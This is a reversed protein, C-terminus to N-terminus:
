YVAEFRFFMQSQSGTPILMNIVGNSGIIPDGYSQWNVFDTSYLIQYSVGKAGFWGLNVSAGQPTANLAFISPPVALFDQKASALINAFNVSSPILTDTATSPVLTGTWGFPVVIAYNGRADTTAATLGGSPQVNVGPVPANNTDTITGFISPPVIMFSGIYATAQALGFIDVVPPNVQITYQGIATQQPFSVTIQSLDQPYDNITSFSLSTAPLVGNPTTIVVNTPPLSLQGLQSNWFLSISSVANSVTGSPSQSIIQPASLNTTVITGNQGPSAGAAGSVSAVGIFNNTLSYLAIRGGGGGGGAGPEGAGGNATIAGNGNIAGANVWVSGGAGGGTNQFIAAKGNATISGDVTLAGAVELRIAGGGQSFNAFAASPVGGQSGWDVPQQISGYTIGGPEGTASAGGKGGYGGGGGSDVGGPLMTGAGPGASGIGDYGQGDVSIAGAAEIVANGFVVLSANDNASPSTVVGNSQVLLNSLYLTPDTASSTVSPTQAIANGSVTLNLLQPASISTKAGSLGGNDVLVSGVINNSSQTYITGAGGPVFGQGGHASVTGTFLNSLYYIAIRGGGGGGSYPLIGAGGNASIAGAGALTSVTLQISGGSGGGCGEAFPTAANASISGELDLTGNVNMQVSGGGASQSYPPTFCGGGSGMSVPALISGYAVGQAASIASSGGFGGYAGGTGMAFGRISTGSSGAGTGQNGFFGGGDAIIQAGAQVTANSLVTVGSVPSGNTGALSLVSNSTLLLNHVALRNPSAASVKAGGTITLDTAGPLAPLVTFTTVGSTGGGDVLVQAYQTGNVHSYITGASGPVFGGGGYASITGTFLNTNLSVAIRGGGGGGGLASEGPGGNASIIGNGSFIGGVTLMISGGSGGGSGEGLGAVGNASISGGLLLGGTISLQIAGGGAGGRNFPSNGNGNGGNSGPQTPQVLSGYSNGGPGGGASAGGNGGYGGGAGTFSGNTSISGGSGPGNQPGLYGGGDVNIGGGAQITATGSISLELSTPSQVAPVPLTLFSNSAVLLNRVLMGQIPVVTAGNTVTLDITGGSQGSVPTNTGRLGGNDVLLQTSAPHIITMLITGAGGNIAGTGGHAVIGGSFQNTGLSLAIRGGGGGGGGGLSPEGAGGNASISGNGSIAGATVLISGGSGGGSAQGVGATGNASLIGDLELAGTVTLQIAAGGLGGRNNPAVGAGVGGSSGYTEPFSISGYSNGGAAGRASGGGYGGSGGGGGTAIDNSAFTGGVGQGGSSLGDVVVGGGAQITATGSARLNLPPYAQGNISSLTITSNSTVLLNRMEFTAQPLAALIAGNAVTLDYNNGAGELPTTAGRNGGNDLVLQALNNSTQVYVTGAGGPVFGGGGYASATGTFLNTTPYIAIRGGGGGGGGGLSPEGAGGNASFSGNGSLQGVTVWISGGSGGGSGQGVGTNGNASIRGAMLLTGTVTLRVGGGGTGGANFPSTGGGNGGGSGVSSPQTFSGFYTGGPVGSASSGGVGGYGGGGGMVVSNTVYSGGQGQGSVASAAGDGDVIIGGGSQITANGTLNLQMPPQTSPSSILFCNSSIVLNRLSLSTGPSVVATAGNTLTLDSYESETLLTNTGRLGGNDLILQGIQNRTSFLYITGAGGASFGPGGRASISGAFLNTSYTIAIRGGGGGGGLISEGAGGNASINGSGTLQGVQLRIGGGSGGGSGQGVGPNGNATINGGVQLTGGVTLEIFGGGIGGLNSPSTGGGNGGASGAQSPETIIGYSNGGASVGASVGGYGGYGGGGGSSIGNAVGTAGSGVGSTGPTYGDGDGIIGGGPQITANSTVTVQLTLVSESQAVTLFSNTGIFLNRITSTSGGAALVAGNTITLDYAGTVTGLSTNAGQQGGNDLLLEAASNGLMTYVTGAGGAMFGAGGYASIAGTFQNTNLYLAIRGGGGGGGLPLQGSGGNAAITGNGSLTGATLSVSGGSGGGSGEGFGPVGNASIAGGLQLTGAVSLLIAGGGSGGLSYPVDGTGPGGGSGPQNPSMASGYPNGGESQVLGASVGGFGGYSGGGGTIIGNALAGGGTGIGEGLTGAGEGDVVIGGGSQISANGSLHLNLSVPSGSRGLIWSNSAISVNGLSAVSLPVVAGGSVTLDFPESVDLSTNTGSAGGNDVVVQGYVANGINTSLTYVTGAGGSVPGMGGQAVLTGLFNNNTAYIAVRGGGGGGGAFPEGAGGNASISGGGEISQALLWIGGGSGGGSGSNVGNAGNASITGDVLIDGGVVLIISGGGSGGVDAGAGGGSGSNTPALVLGYAAGGTAGGLSSGGFGGYAGGGGSTYYFPPGYPFDSLLSGGAGSGFGGGFGKGDATVASGAEIVLNNSIVLNLGTSVPQGPNAPNPLFGNSSFSHTLIGGGVLLVDTFTHSGDVTLTCDYVVIDQGDYNTNGVGITTNTTFFAAPATFAPLLLAAIGAALFSKPYMTKMILRTKLPGPVSRGM